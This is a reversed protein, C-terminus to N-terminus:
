LIFTFLILPYMNHFINHNPYIWGVSLPHWPYSSWWTNSLSVQTTSPNLVLSNPVTQITSGIRSTTQQRRHSEFATSTTSSPTSWTELNWAPPCSEWWITHFSSLCPYGMNDVSSRTVRQHTGWISQHNYHVLSSRQISDRHYSSSRSM